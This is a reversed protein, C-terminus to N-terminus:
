ARRKLTLLPIHRKRERWLAPIFLLLAAGLLAVQYTIPHPLLQIAIPALALVVVYHWTFVQLSHRGLLALPKITLTPQNKLLYAFLYIWLLLNTVRLWGLTPKDALAYLNGQHLGWNLLFHHHALFLFIAASAVAATIVPFRFWNLRYRQHIFGLVMGGFFLGQWALWSFYGTNLSTPGGLQKSLQSLDVYSSLLWLLASIAVVRQWHGRHLQTLALPSFFLFVIYMPLIDFYAPKHLLLLTFVGSLLPTDLLWPFLTYYLAKSSPQVTMWLLGCLLILVLAAIHYRYLQWARQRLKAQWNPRPQWHILGIMLGSLFIFGEAAGVQGLPQLTFLQIPSQGGSVWFFHNITMFLLLLGRLTDIGHHRQM